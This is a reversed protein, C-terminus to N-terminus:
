DVVDFGAGPVLLCGTGPGVGCKSLAARDHGGSLVVRTMVDVPVPAEIADVLRLWEIVVDPDEGEWGELPNLDGRAGRADCAGAM